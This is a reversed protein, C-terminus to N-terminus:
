CDVRDSPQWPKRRSVSLCGFARALCSPFTTMLWSVAWPAGPEPLKAAMAIASAWVAEQEWYSVQRAACVNRQLTHSSSAGAEYSQLKTRAAGLSPIAVQTLLQPGLLFLCRWSHEPRPLFLFGQCGAHTSGDVGRSRPQALTPNTPWSPGSDSGDSDNKNEKTCLSALKM